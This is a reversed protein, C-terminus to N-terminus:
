YREKGKVYVGALDDCERCRVARRRYDRHAESSAPKQPSQESYGYRASGM